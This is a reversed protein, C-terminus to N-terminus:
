KIPLYAKGVGDFGPRILIEDEFCEQLNISIIEHYMHKLSKKRRDPTATLMIHIKGHPNGHDRDMFYEKMETGVNGMTEHGEDSVLMRLFEILKDLLARNNKFLSKLSAYTSGIVPNQINQQKIDKM